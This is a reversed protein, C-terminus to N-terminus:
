RQCVGRSGGKGGEGWRVEPVAEVLRELRSLRRGLADWQEELLPMPRVQSM